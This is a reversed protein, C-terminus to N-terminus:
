AQKLFEDHLKKQAEYQKTLKKVLSKSLPKGEVDATPFGKDDFASYDKCSKFMEQPPIKAQEMRQRQREAELRQQEAKKAAKEAAKAARENRENILDQKEKAGLFKVLAPGESRDDVIVGLDLLDENRVKDTLQLLESHPKKAIAAARVSDRFRSLTTVFPMAVDETSAAGAGNSSSSAWGLGDSSVEFGLVDLISTIWRAIESLPEHRIDDRHANIYVNAKQVLTGLERVAEPVSLNDAFYRHVSVKAAALDKYLQLEDKGVKKSPSTEASAEERRYAKVNNFFNSLASELSRVEALLSERFDLQTNWQQLTFALRLQRASYKQLAEKITIFNKLSKSMKQGEIHLHGTHLFYNIWQHNQHCAESQALENDHHPFALDIGGSHVDIQPGLVESAMVSCEIHWGPRGQGWPSQWFPEGPKSSKWLAFDNRSKKGSRVVSLAGEGEDILDQKGKNWPQLKAYDHGGKEFAATDFYVSGDDTQYGFGNAVIKEIFAIIEPVYESVRTTVSPPLVNLARMDNDYDREWKAALDRFIAPDTVSAGQEADLVPLLVSKAKELFEDVGLQGRQELAENASRVATLNMPLKPDEAKAAELDLTALWKELVSVDDPGGKPLNKKAFADTAAKVKSVLADDVAATEKKFKEFLYNQRARLIIKDDIDTVNQVFMVDYGFYNQLLRRNIDTAVYNRAHGMHSSDYVTPGCSYWSVKGRELPVFETKTRTLTNYLRLKPLEDGHAEPAYWRPQQVKSEETM